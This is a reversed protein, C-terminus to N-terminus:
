EDDPDPAYYTKTDSWPGKTGTDANGTTLRARVYRIAPFVPAVWNQSHLTDLIHDYLVAPSSFQQNDDYQFTAYYRLTTNSVQMTTDSVRLSTPKPPNTGAPTFTKVDSWEGRTGSDAVGTTFRGRYYSVGSPPTWSVTHVTNRNRDYLRTPSTFANNDDYEVTMYYSDITQGLHGINTDSAGMIPKPIPRVKVHTLTSSWESKTGRDSPLTTFRARIYTTGTPAVWEAVHFTSLRLDYARTPSTFQANDDYEFTACYNGTTDSARLFQDSASLGTPVPIVVTNVYTITTSWPGRKGADIPATTFRARIYSTGDLPSWSATHINDFTLDYALKSNTFDANDAYEATMYYSDITGKAKIHSENATLETPALGTPDGPETESLVTGIGPKGWHIKARQLKPVYQFGRDNAYRQRQWEDTYRAVSPRELKVMDNEVQLTVKSTKGDDDISILNSKGKFITSVGDLEGNSAGLFIKVEKRNFESEMVVSIISSPIGSLSLQVSKSEIQETEDIESIGLLSGIGSYVNGDISKDGLGNWYRLPPSIDLSAAFWFDFQEGSVIRLFNNEQAQTPM